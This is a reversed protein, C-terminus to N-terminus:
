NRKAKTFRRMFGRGGINWSYLIIAVSNNPRVLVDLAIAIEYVWNKSIELIGPKFRM